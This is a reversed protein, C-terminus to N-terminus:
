LNRSAPNSIGVFHGVKTRQRLPTQATNGLVQILGRSHFPVSHCTFALSFCSELGTCQLTPLGVVSFHHDTKLSRHFRTHTVEIVHIGTQALIQVAHSGMILLFMLVRHPDTDSRFTVYMEYGQAISSSWGARQLRDHQTKGVEKSCECTQAM